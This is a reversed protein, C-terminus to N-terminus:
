LMAPDFNESPDKSLLVDPGFHEFPDNSFVSKIIGASASAEDGSADSVTPFERTVVTESFSGEAARKSDTPWV